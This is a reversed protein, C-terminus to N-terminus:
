FELTNDTDIRDREIAVLPSEPRSFSQKLKWAGLAKLYEFNGAKTDPYNGRIPESMPANQIVTLKNIDGANQSAALADISSGGILEECNLHATKIKVIADNLKNILTNSYLTGPECYQTIWDLLAEADQIPYLELQGTCSAIIIQKWYASCDVEKGSELILTYDQPFECAVVAWEALQTAFKMNTANKPNKANDKSRTALLWRTLINTRRQVEEFAAQERNGDLFSDIGKNWTNLITGINELDNNESNIVLSPLQFKPHKIVGIRGIVDLLSTINQAILKNTHVTFKAPVQWNILTTSNLLSLFLLFKEKEGLTPEQIDKLALLILRSQSCGFVPHTFQKSDSVGSLLPIDLVLGSIQCITRM